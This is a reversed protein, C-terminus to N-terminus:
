FSHGLGCFAKLMTRDRDAIDHFVFRIEFFLSLPGSVAIEAGGFGELGADSDGETSDDDYNYYNLSTGFGIFPIISSGKMFFWYWDIHIGWVDFTEHDDRKMEIYDLSPRFNLSNFIFSGLDFYIGGTWTDDYDARSYDDRMFAYGGKIGIEKAYVSSISLILFGILVIINMFKKM